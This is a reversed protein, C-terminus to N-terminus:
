FLGSFFSGVAGAAAAVANAGSEIVGAVAKVAKNGMDIAMKFPSVALRGVAGLLGHKEVDEHFNWVPNVITTM